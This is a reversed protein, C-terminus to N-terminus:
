NSIYRFIKLHCRSQNPSSMFSHAIYISHNVSPFSTGYGVRFATCGPVPGYWIPKQQFLYCYQYGNEGGSSTERFSFDSCTPISGICKRACERSNSTRVRRVFTNDLVCTKGVASTLAAFYQQRQLLQCEVSLNICCLFVAVSVKFVLQCSMTFREPYQDTFSVSRHSM